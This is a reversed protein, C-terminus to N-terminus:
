IAAMVPILYNDRFSYGERDLYDGTWLDSDDSPAENSVLCRACADFRLVDYILRWMDPDLLRSPQCFLTALIKGGWEFLGSDRCVSFTMETQLIRIAPILQLFQLFNPYTTPNFVIM